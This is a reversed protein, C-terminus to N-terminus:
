VRLLSLLSLSHCWIKLRHLHEQFIRLSILVGGFLVSITTNKPPVKSSFWLKLPYFKPGRMTFGRRTALVESGILWPVDFSRVWFCNVQSFIFISQYGNLRIGWGSVTANKFSKKTIGSGLFFPLEDQHTVPMRPPPTPDLPNELLLISVEFSKQSIPTEKFPPVGLDDMKIPNGNYVMWKPTGRNKSVDM